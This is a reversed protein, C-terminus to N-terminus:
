SDHQPLVDFRTVRFALPRYDRNGWLDHPAFWRDAEIDLVHSGPALHEVPLSVKFSSAREHLPARGEIRLTLMTAGPMEPPVYGEIRLVQNRPEVITFELSAHPGSWGDSHLGTFNRWAVTQPHPARSPRARRGLRVLRRAIGGFRRALPAAAANLAVDPAVAGGLLICGLAAPYQAARWRSRGAQLWEYGHGRRDMRFKLYSARLFLGQATWWPGWYRRSVRIADQLRQVDDVGQTKSSAHLRYNALLQDICHFEFDHSFRCFLDYDLMLQERDNLPGCREWVERTWFVAPQPISHGKWIALVHAHSVFASPHEVGIFRDHEDIFRCRGMVIHRGAAPDIERAVRTLAGPEFTDDSNLFCLISGTARRFGKNIADAQGTDPERIVQLHPYRALIAPTEDTSMGDVVIHEVDPHDQALVSEITRAIFPGQNYSSTIVSIRPLAPM